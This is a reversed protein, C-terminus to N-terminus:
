LILDASLYVLRVFNVPSPSPQRRTKREGSVFHPVAVRIHRWSILVDVDDDESDSSQPPLGFMLIKNNVVPCQVNGPQYFYSVHMPSKAHLMGAVQGSM